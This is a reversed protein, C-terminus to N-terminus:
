LRCSSSYPSMRKHFPYLHTTIFLLLVLFYVTIPPWLITIVNVRWKSLGVPVITEHVTIEYHRLRLSLQIGRAKFKVITKTTPEKRQKFTSPKECTKSSPDKYSVPQPKKSNSYITQVTWILKIRLDPTYLDRDDHRVFKLRHRCINITYPVEVM